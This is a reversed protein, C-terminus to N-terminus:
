LDSSKIKGSSLGNMIVFSQMLPDKFKYRFRKRAGSKILIHGREASSFKDLHPAYAAIAYAKGSITILPDRLDQAAFEGLENVQSMACALIVDSFLNIKKTSRIATHYATKISHQAEEISKLIANSFNDVTINLSEKDLAQRSAYKGILHAYHPLGKSLSAINDLAQKDITMGLKNLGKTIINRIDDQSMRPMNIQVMARAISEHEKMLEGVNDGVGILLVTAPIAHDSLTKILDAFLRRHREHIRDFEDIIVLPKFSTSVISLVKKVDDISVNESQVLVNAKIVVQNGVPSFGVGGQDKVIEM